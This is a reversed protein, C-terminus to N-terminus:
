FYRRWAGESANPSLRSSLFPHMALCDIMKQYYEASYGKYGQRKSTEVILNVAEKAFLGNGISIDFEDKIEVGHKEALRINYRTKHHMEALLQEETKSLDIILTKAPQINQSKTLLPYRTAPLLFKPELRIFVAAPFVPLLVQQLLEYNLGGAPPSLEYNKGMVPGYPAYLYYKGLPLPMKILQISGIQAEGADLIKFRYVTRGLASQWEGWEWSQLFSGSESDTVFRNYEYKQNELVKRFEM